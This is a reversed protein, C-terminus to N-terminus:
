VVTSSVEKEVRQQDTIYAAGGLSILLCTALVVRGRTLSSPMRASFIHFDAFCLMMSPSM